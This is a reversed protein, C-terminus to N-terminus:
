FKTIIDAVYRQVITADFVTVENDSDVDSLAKQQETMDDISAVYRQIVTADLINVEGDINADGILPKTNTISLANTIQDKIYTHGAENPYLGHKAM